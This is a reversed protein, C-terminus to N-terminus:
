STLMALLARTSDPDMGGVFQRFEADKQTVYRLIASLVKRLFNMEAIFISKSKNPLHKKGSLMEM